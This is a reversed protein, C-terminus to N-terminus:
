ADQIQDSNGINTLLISIVDTNTHCRILSLSNV